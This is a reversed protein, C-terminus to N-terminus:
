PGIHRTQRRTSLIVPLFLLEKAIILEVIAHEQMTEAHKTESKKENQDSASPYKEEEIPELDM